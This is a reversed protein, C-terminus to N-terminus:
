LRWMGIWGPTVSGKSRWCVVRVEVSRRLCRWGLGIRVNRRRGMGSMDEYGLGNSSDNSRGRGGFM